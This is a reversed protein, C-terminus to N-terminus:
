KNQSEEKLEDVLLQFPSFIRKLINVPAKATDELLSLETYPNDMKGTVNVETTIKGDDGLLLYGFIPIKNLISSLSKMTSLTLQMNIDEQILDIVGEGEIDVSSGHILIKELAIFEDNIGIRIKANDIEYGSTSFGPLKFVVLSPIADILTLLNQLSAMNKVSTNSMTIDGLFKGDKYIGILGFTGGQVVEKHFVQNIFKDNFNNARIGITKNDLEIDAVGNKYKANGIFGNKTTQLIGQDINLDYNFLKISANNVNINIKTHEKNDQSIHNEDRMNAFLPISSELIENVDVKINNANISTNGSDTKITVNFRNASDQLLLIGNELMGNISLSQIKHANLDYIPYNLNYLNANIAIDNENNILLKMNGSKFDLMQLIPAYPLLKGIDNIAVKITNNIEIKADHDAFDVFINEKSFDIKTRISDSNGFDIINSDGKSVKFYTPVAILDIIKKNTDIKLDVKSDLIDKFQTYSDAIIVSDTDIYINAQKILLEINGIDVNSDQVRFYGNTSVKTELKKTPLLIDLNIYGDGYGDKQNVPINIDYYNLISLIRSDLIAQTSKINLKLLTQKDLFKSLEVLGNDAIVGGYSADKAKFQLKGDNFVVDVKNSTIPLLTSDIELAVNEVVGSAYLNKVIDRQLHRSHLDNIVLYAKDVRVHDYHVKQYMWEYVDLDLMKIYPALVLISELNTTDLVINLYEFDTQGKINIINDDKKNIFSSLDFAFIGDDKTYLISGKVDINQKKIELKDIDLFIDNKDDRLRFVALAQPVNIKYQNGDFYISSKDDIYQINSINLKEFFSAIWITRRITREIDKMNIPKSDKSRSIGGININDIELILKENLKLYLGDIKIGAISLSNIRFGDSLVKFILIFLLIIILLIAIKSYTKKLTTKNKKM